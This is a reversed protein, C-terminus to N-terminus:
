EECRKESLEVQEEHSKKSLDLLDEQKLEGKEWLEQYPPILNLLQIRVYIYGRSRNIASAITEQKFHNALKQFRKGQDVESITPPPNLLLATDALLRKAEPTPDEANVRRREPKQLTM